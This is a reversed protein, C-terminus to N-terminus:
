TNEEPYIPADTCPDSDNNIEELEDIRMRLQSPYPKTTFVGQVLVILPGSSPYAWTIQVIDGPQICPHFVQPTANYQKVRYLRPEIKQTELNYIIEVTM